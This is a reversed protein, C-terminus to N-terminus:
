LRVIARQFMFREETTSNASRFGPKRTIAGRAGGCPRKKFQELVAGVKCPNASCTLPMHGDRHGVQRGASRRHTERHGMPVGRTWQEVIMFGQMAAEIGRRRGM